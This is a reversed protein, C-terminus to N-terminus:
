KRTRKGHDRLIRALARLADNVAKDDTFVRAVDPDLRANRASSPVRGVYKGRVGKSFDYEPLMDDPDDDHGDQKRKSM